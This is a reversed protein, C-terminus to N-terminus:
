APIMQPDTEVLRRLLAMNSILLRACLAPHIENRTIPAMPAMTTAIVVSAWISVRRSPRSATCVFARAAPWPAHEIAVRAPVAAVQSETLTEFGAVWDAAGASGIRGREEDGVVPRVPHVARDIKIMRM